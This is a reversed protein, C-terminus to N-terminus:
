SFTILIFVQCCTFPLIIANQSHSLFDKSIYGPLTITNRRLLHLSFAVKPTLIHFASVKEKELMMALFLLIIM